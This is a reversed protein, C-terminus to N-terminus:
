ERPLGLWDGKATRQNCTSGPNLNRRAGCPRKPPAHTGCRTSRSSWGAATTGSGPSVTSYVIKMEAPDMGFEVDLFTGGRVSTLVWRMYTGTDLCRIKIESCDELRELLVTEEATGVPGKAVWRYECGQEIGDCKAEIM